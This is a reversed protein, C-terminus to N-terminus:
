MVVDIDIYVSETAVQFNDLHEYYEDPLVHVSHDAPITM